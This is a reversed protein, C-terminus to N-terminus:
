IPLMGPTSTAPPSTMSPTDFGILIMLCNDDDSLDVRLNYSTGDSLGPCTLHLFQPFPDDMGHVCPGGDGGMLELNDDTVTFLTRDIMLTFHAKGSDIASDSVTVMPFENPIAVIFIHPSHLMFSM